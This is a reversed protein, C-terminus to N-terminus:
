EMLVTAMVLDALQQLSAKERISLGEARPQTDYVSLVGLVAGEPSRIPAGAYFRVGEPAYQVRSDQHVDPIVLVGCDPRRQITHACISKCRPIEKLDGLGQASRMILRGLDMFGVCAMPADLLEMAGKVLEDMEPNSRSIDLVNYSAVIKLRKAEVYSDNVTDVTSLGDYNDLKWKAVVPADDILDCNDLALAREMNSVTHFDYISRHITQTTMTSFSFLIKQTIISGKRFKHVSHFQADEFSENMM